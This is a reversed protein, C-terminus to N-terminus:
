RPLVMQRCFLKLLAQSELVLRDLQHLQQTAVDLEQDCEGAGVGPRVEDM